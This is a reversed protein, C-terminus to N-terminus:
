VAKTVGSVFLGHLKRIFFNFMDDLRDPKLEELGVLPMLTIVIAVGVTHLGSPVVSDKERNTFWLGRLSQM